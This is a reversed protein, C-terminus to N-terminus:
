PEDEDEDEFGEEDEFVAKDDEIVGEDDVGTGISIVRPTVPPPPTVYQGEIVVPTPGAASPPTVPSPSGFTPVTADLQSGEVPMRPAAITLRMSERRHRLIEKAALQLEEPSAGVDEPRIQKQEGPGPMLEQGIATAIRDRHETAELLIKAVGEWSKPTVMEDNMKELALARVTELDALDRQRLRCLETGLREKARASWAQFFASRREVWKDEKCWRELTKLAVKSFRPDQSMEELTPDQNTMYYIGAEARLRPDRTLAGTPAKTRPKTTPTAEALTSKMDNSGSM